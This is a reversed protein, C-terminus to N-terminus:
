KKKIQLGLVRVGEETKLSLTAPESILCNGKSITSKQGNVTVEAEGELVIFIVYSVMECKPINEGASLNIIRAKFEEAEYFVNKDGQSYPFSELQSLDIIKM